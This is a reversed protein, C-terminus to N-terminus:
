KFGNRIILWLAFFFLFAFSLIVFWDSAFFSTAGKSIGNVSMTATHPVVRVFDSEDNNNYENSNVNGRFVSDENYSYLESNRNDRIQNNTDFEKEKERNDVLISVSNEKSAYDSINVQASCVNVKGYDNIVTMNYTTDRTPTVVRAGGTPDVHGVGMDIFAVGANVTDWELIVAGELSVRPVLICTPAESDNEDEVAVTAGCNLQRVLRYTVYGCDPCKSQLEADPSVTITPPVSPDVVQNPVQQYKVQQAFITNGLFMVPLLIFVFVYVRAFILM